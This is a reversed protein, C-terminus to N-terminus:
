VAEDRASGPPRTCAGDPPPHVRGRKRKAEIVVGVARVPDVLSPLPVEEIEARWAGFLEALRADAPDRHETM